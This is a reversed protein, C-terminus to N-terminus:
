APGNPPRTGLPIKLFLVRLYTRNCLACAYRTSGPVWRMWADRQIRKM